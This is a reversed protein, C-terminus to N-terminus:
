ISRSLRHRVKSQKIQECGALDVLALQSSILKEEDDGNSTGRQTMSVLFVTHARSSAENMATAAVRKNLEGARLLTLADNLTHLQM